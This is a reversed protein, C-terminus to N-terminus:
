WGQIGKGSKQTVKSPTGLVRSSFQKIRAKGLAAHAAFLLGLTVPAIAEGLPLTTGFWVSLVAEGPPLLVCTCYLEPPDNAPLVL